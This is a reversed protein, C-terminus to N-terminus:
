SWHSDDRHELMIQVRSPEVDFRKLLELIREFQLPEPGGVELWWGNPLEFPQKFSEDGDYHSPETNVIYRGDSDKVELVTTLMDTSVLWSAVHGYAERWTTVVRVRDDDFKIRSPHPGDLVPYAKAVPVWEYTPLELAVGRHTPPFATTTM